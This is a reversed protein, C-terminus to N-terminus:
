AMGSRSLPTTSSGSRAPSAPWSRRSWCAPRRRLHRRGAHHPRRPRAPRPHPRARRLVRTAPPKLVAARWRGRPRAPPWAGRCRSRPRAAPRRRPLPQPQVAGARRTAGTPVGVIEVPMDLDAVMRRILALQQFDKEGFYARDPRTLNLLKAVVTLVGDFHGPRSAGELLAGGPGPDVRVLPAGTPYMVDATPAFVLDAGAEACVELDAGLTRPYRDLDEGAGFQLPNVFITM